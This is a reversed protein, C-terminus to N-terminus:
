RFLTGAAGARRAVLALVPGNPHAPDDLGIEVDGFGVHRLAALLDDRSLWRSVAAPGGCFAPHFRAAQYSHVHLRHPFGEVTRAETGRFRAALQPRAEITPRDYDDNLRQRRLRALQVKAM